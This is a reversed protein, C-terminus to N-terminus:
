GVVSQSDVRDRRRCTPYSDVRRWCPRYIRTVVIGVINRTHDVVNSLEGKSIVRSPKYSASSVRVRPPEKLLLVFPRYGDTHSCVYLRFSAPFSNLRHWPRTGHFNVDTAVFLPKFPNLSAVAKHRPPNVNTAVFLTQVPSLSAVACRRPM